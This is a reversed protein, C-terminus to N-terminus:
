IPETHKGLRRMQEATLSPTQLVVDGELRFGFTRFVTLIHKCMGRRGPEITGDDMTCGFHYYCECECQKGIDGHNCGILFYWVHSDPDPLFLRSVGCGIVDPGGDAPLKSSVVIRFSRLATRYVANPPPQEGASTPLLLDADDDPKLVHTQTGYRRGGILAYELNIRNSHPANAEASDVDEDSADLLIVTEGVFIVEDDSSDSLIIADVDSNIMNSSM